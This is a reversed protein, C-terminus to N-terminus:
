HHTPGSAMGSLPFKENILMVPRGGTIIRYTRSLVHEGVHSRFADPLRASTAERGFWLVERRTERAEDNIIRGLSDGDIELRRRAAPWLRDRAILSRACAYVTGSNGGRLLVERDCVPDGEVLELWPEDEGLPRNTQCIRIVEVPELMFAELFSTVTGDLSLLARHVPSLTRLNVPSMGAPMNARAVMQSELPDFRARRKVAEEM